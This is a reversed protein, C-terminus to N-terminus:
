TGMSRELADAACAAKSVSAAQRIIRYDNANLFQAYAEAAEKAFDDHSIESAVYKQELEEVRNRIVEASNLGAVTPSRTWASISWGERLTNDLDLLAIQPLYRTPLRSHWEYARTVLGGPGVDTHDRRTYHGRYALPRYSSMLLAISGMSAANYPDDPGFSLYLAEHGQARGECHWRLHQEREPDLRRITGHLMSSDSRVLEVLDVSTYDRNPQKPIVAYWKEVRLSGNDLGPATPGGKRSARALELLAEWQKM